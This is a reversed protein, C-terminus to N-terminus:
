AAAIRAKYAEVLDRAEIDGRVYADGEIRSNALAVRVHVRRREAEEASIPM